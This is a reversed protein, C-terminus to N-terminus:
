IRELIGVATHGKIGDKDAVLSNRASGGEKSHPGNYERHKMSGGPLERPKNGPALDEKEPHHEWDNVRVNLYLRPAIEKCPTIPKKPSKPNM